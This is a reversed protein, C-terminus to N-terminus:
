FHSKKQRCVSGCYQDPICHSESWGKDCTVLEGDLCTHM